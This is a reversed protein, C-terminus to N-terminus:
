EETANDKNDDLSDKPIAISPGNSGGGYFEPVDGMIVSKAVYIKTSVDAVSTSFPIIVQVEAEVLVYITILTGNIGIDEKETVVDTKVNGVFELNVPIKPGLNSLVTNGTAMGIPIEVVTPDEKHINEPTDGYDSPAIDLDADEPSKGENMLKFFKEVRDTSVRNIESVMASDWSLTSVYGQNNLKVHMIDDFEYDESFRVAANIGRTAFETTKTEAAEMIAPEIGRNIFFLSCIIMALFLFFTIMFITSVPPPTRNRKFFNNKLM